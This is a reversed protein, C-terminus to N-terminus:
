AKWEKWEGTSDMFYKKCTDLTYLISAPLITCGDPLGTVNRGTTPMTAPLTDAQIVVREETGFQTKNEPHVLIMGM